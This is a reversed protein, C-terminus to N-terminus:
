LENLPMVVRSEQHTAGDVRGEGSEPTVGSLTEVYVIFNGDADFHFDLDVANTGLVIDEFDNADDPDRRIRLVVQGDRLFIKRAPSWPTTLEGDTTMFTAIGGGSNLRVTQYEITDFPEFTSYIFFRREPHPPHWYEVGDREFSSNLTGVDQLPFNYAPHAVGPGAANLPLSLPSEVAHNIDSTTQVLENAIGDLILRSQELAQARHHKARTASSFSGMSQGLVVLVGGMVAAAVMMEVATLGADSRRNEVRSM